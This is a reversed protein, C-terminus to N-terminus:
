QSIIFHRRTSPLLRDKGVRRLVAGRSAVASRKAWAATPPPTYKPKGHSWMSSPCCFRHQRMLRRQSSSSLLHSSLRSRRVESKKESERESSCRGESAAPRTRLVQFRRSPDPDSEAVTRNRPRELSGPPGRHSAKM